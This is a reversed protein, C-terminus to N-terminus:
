HKAWAVTPVHSGSSSAGVEPESLPDDDDEEKHEEEGEDDTAPGDEDGKNKDEASIRKSVDTLWWPDEDVPFIPDGALTQFAPKPQGTQSALDCRNIWDLLRRFVVQADPQPNLTEALSRFKLPISRENCFKQDIRDKLRSKTRDYKWDDTVKCSCDFFDDVNIGAAILATALDELIDKPPMGLLSFNQPDTVRSILVYVQGLAFVGLMCTESLPPIRM